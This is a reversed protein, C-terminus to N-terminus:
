VTVQVLFSVYGAVSLFFLEQTLLYPLIIQTLHTMNLVSVKISYMWCCHTKFKRTDNIKLKLRVAIKQM